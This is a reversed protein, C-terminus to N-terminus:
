TKRHASSVSSLPYALCSMRQQQEELQQQEDLQQQLQQEEAQGNQAAAKASESM